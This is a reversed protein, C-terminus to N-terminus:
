QGVIGRPQTMPVVRDRATWLRYSGGRGVAMHRTGAVHEVEYAHQGIDHNYGLREVIKYPQGDIMVFRAM